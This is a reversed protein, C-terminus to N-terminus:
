VMRPTVDAWIVTITSNSVEVYLGTLDRLAQAAGELAAKGSRSLNLQMSAQRTKAADLAERVIEAAFTNVLDAGADRGFIRIDRFLYDIGSNRSYFTNSSLSARYANQVDAKIQEPSM